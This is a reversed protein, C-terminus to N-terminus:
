DIAQLTMANTNQFLVHSNLMNSNNFHKHDKSSIVILVLTVIAQPLSIQLKGGITILTSLTRRRYSCSGHIWNKCYSYLVLVRKHTTFVNIQTYM